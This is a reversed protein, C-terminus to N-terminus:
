EVKLGLKAAEKKIREIKSLKAAKNKAREAAQKKLRKELEKDTEFRDGVLVSNIGNDYEDYHDEVRLNVYKDEYKKLGVFFEIVDDLKWNGLPDVSQIQERILKKKNNKM